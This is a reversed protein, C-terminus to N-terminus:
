NFKAEFENQFRQAYGVKVDIHSVTSLDDFDGDFVVVFQRGTELDFKNMFDFVADNEEGNMTAVSFCVRLEGYADERMDNPVMRKITLQRM